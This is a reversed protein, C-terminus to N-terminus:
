CFSEQHLCKKELTYKQQRRAEEMIIRYKTLSLLRQEIVGKFM